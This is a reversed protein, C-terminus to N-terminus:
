NCTASIPMTHPCHIVGRATSPYANELHYFRCNLTNTGDPLDVGTSGGDTTFVFGPGADGGGQCSNTCDGLSMYSPKKIGACYPVDLQCFNSCPDSPSGQCQGGGLPGAFRCNTTPDSTALQAYHIRCGLTNGTTDALTGNDFAFNNCMSECLAQSGQYELSDNSTCNNTIEQCYYACTIAPAVGGESGEGVTATGIGLLGNCASAGVALAGLALACVTGFVLGVYKM